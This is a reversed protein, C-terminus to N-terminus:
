PSLREKMWDARTLGGGNSLRGFQSVLSLCAGTATVQETGLNEFAFELVHRVLFSGNGQGRYAHGIAVILRPVGRVGILRCVGLVAPGNALVFIYSRGEDRAKTAAEIYDAIQGPSPAMSIGAAAAVDPEGFLARLGEAHEMAMMLVERTESLTM